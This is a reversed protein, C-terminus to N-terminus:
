VRVADTKKVSSICILCVAGNSQFTDALYSLIKESDGGQDQYSTLVKGVAKELLEQGAEDEEDSSSEVFPHAEMHKEIAAQNQAQARKFKRM